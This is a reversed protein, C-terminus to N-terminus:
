PASVRFVRITGGRDYPRRILGGTSPTILFRGDPSFAVSGCGLDSVKQQDIIKGSGIDILWVTGTGYIGVAVLRGDPSFAPDSVYGGEIDLSHLRIRRGVDWIQLEGSDTGAALLEGEKSFSLGYVYRGFGELVALRQGTLMNWLTVVNWHGSALTMGDPSIAISFANHKGFTSVQKGTALEVVRIHFDETGQGSRSEAVYRSDPSFAHVAYVDDRLSILQKGSEIDWVGHFSAYYKWDSSIATPRVSLRKVLRGEPFSWLALNGSVDDPATAGDSAVMTGDQSFSVFSMWGWKDTQWGVGIQKVFTLGHSQSRLIGPVVLMLVILIVSRYKM